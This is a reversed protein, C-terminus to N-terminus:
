DGDHRAVLARGKRTLYGDESIYGLEMARLFNRRAATGGEKPVYVIGDGFHHELVEVLEEESPDSLQADPTYMSEVFMTDPTTDINLARVAM